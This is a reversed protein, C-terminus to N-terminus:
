INPSTTLRQSFIELFSCKRCLPCGKNHYEFFSIFLLLFYVLNESLLLWPVDFLLLWPVDFKMHIDRKYKMSM